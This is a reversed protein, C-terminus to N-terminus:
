LVGAPKRALVLAAQILRVTALKRKDGAKAGLLLKVGGALAMDCDGARLAAVVNEIGDGDSLVAVPMEPSADILRKLSSLSVPDAVPAGGLNLLGLRFRAGSELACQLSDQSSSAVHVRNAEAWDRLFGVLAARRLPKADVVIIAPRDGEAALERM